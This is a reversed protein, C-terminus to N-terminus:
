NTAKTQEGDLDLNTQESVADDEVSKIPGPKSFQSKQPM